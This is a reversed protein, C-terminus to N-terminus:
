KLSLIYQALSKTDVESLAPSSPPMVANGWKGGGGKAIRDMLMKEADAQGRYKKAVERFIPGLKPKGPAADVDHCPTCNGKKGLAPMEEAMAPLAACCGALVWGAIRRKM